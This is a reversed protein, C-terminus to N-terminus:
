NKERKTKKKKMRKKKRKFLTGRHGGGKQPFPALTGAGGGRAVALNVTFFNM